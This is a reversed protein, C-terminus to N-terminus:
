CLVALRKQGLGPYELHRRIRSSVICRTRSRQPASRSIDPAPTKSKRCANTASRPSGASSPSPRRAPFPSSSASSERPTGACCNKPDAQRPFSWPLPPAIQGGRQFRRRALPRTAAHRQSLERSERLRHARRRCRHHRVVVRGHSSNQPNGEESFARHPNRSQRSFREHPTVFTRVRATDRCAGSVSLTRQRWKRWDRRVFACRRCLRHAGNPRM